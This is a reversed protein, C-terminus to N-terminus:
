VTTEHESRRESTASPLKAQENVRVLQGNFTM